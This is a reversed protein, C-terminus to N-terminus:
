YSGIRYETKRQEQNKYFYKYILKTFSSLVALFIFDHFNNYSLIFVFTDEKQYSWNWRKAEHRKIKSSILKWSTSNSVGANAQYYDRKMKQHNQNDSIHPKYSNGKRRWAKKEFNHISATHKKNSLNFYNYCICFSIVSSFYGEFCSRNNQKSKEDLNTNLRIVPISYTLALFGNQFTPDEKERLANLPKGLTWISLSISRISSSERKVSSSKFFGCSGVPLLKHYM